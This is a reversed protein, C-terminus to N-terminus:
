GWKYIKYGYLDYTNNQAYYEADERTDFVKIMEIEDVVPVPEGDAGKLIIFYM